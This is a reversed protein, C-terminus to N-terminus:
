MHSVGVVDAGVGLTQDILERSLGTPVIDGVLDEYTLGDLLPNGVDVGPADYIVFRSERANTCTNPTRGSAEAGYRTGAFM